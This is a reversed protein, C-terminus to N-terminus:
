GANEKYAKIAQKMSAERIEVRVDKEKSLLAFKLTELNRAAEEEQTKRLEVLEAANKKSERVFLRQAATQKDTTANDKSYNNSIPPLRSM